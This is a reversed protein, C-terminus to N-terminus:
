STPAAPSEYLRRTQLFYIVVTAETKQLRLISDSRTNGHFELPEKSSFFALIADLERSAAM